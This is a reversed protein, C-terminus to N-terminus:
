PINGGRTNKHFLKFLMLTLEKFDSYFENTLYQAQTNQKIKNQKQQKIDKWIIIKNLDEIEEHTTKTKHRELFINM